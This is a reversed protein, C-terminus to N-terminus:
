KLGQLLTEARQKTADRQSKEVVAQLARQRQERAIGPRDKGALNVLAACADEAIAADSTATELLELAGATPLNAVAALALRKEEPRQLVPLLEKVKAVREENSLKKDERVFQLYGRVGLVQYSLKKGSKALALLPEAVGADEPWSNPWTSLTRVAEDQVTEEKDELGARVAALAEPGGASALAHLGITRLAPEESRMLPLLAPVCSAGCRGSLALLAKELDARDQNNATKQLLKVLDAAQESHGLTGLTAVAAGRVGADSDEAAAALLPLAGELRRQGALAILVERTKGTAQGLRTQLDADVEAGPLQALTSIAAQALETDPGTAAEILAPVCSGNGLRALAGVAAIRLSAPGSQAAHLVAPLVADDQRDALALLLPTQRPSDTRGLEAALAETVDRGPLERATRLGIGFRAKDTSRLQELLLPLGASGRALIAGRIGELLREKPVEAGRVTDYLRTATAADGQALAQEAALVCGQAVAARVEGAPASALAAELAAIAPSGGIRGLAVAAAAAVAAEPDKLKAALGDVAKAERRYAISNIVGVLLNGQLKGLAERLAADPADGPIAELAIRAWSALHPDALLPALAPVAEATGYIVLRKCTIAKEQPPADSQLVHILERQKAALTEADEIPGAAAPRPALLLALLAVWGTWGGVLRKMLRM